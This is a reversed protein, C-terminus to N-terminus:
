WGLEERVLCVGKDVLHMTAAHTPLCQEGSAVTLESDSLLSISVTLLTDTTPM